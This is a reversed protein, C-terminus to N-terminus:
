GVRRAPSSPLVNTCPAEKIPRKQRAGGARTAEFAESLVRDSVPIVYQDSVSWVKGVETLLAMRTGETLYRKNYRLSHLVDETAIDLPAETPLGFHGILRGHLEVLDDRCAGLLRAVRAAVMMGIAVSEGHFLRYGSLHELP